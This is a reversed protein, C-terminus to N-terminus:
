APELTAFAEDFDYVNAFDEIADERSRRLQGADILAYVITGFDETRHIGWRTLVTRALLGYQRLAFDRLGLCLQQGTIHRHEGETTPRADGFLM